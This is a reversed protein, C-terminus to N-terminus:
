QLSHYMLPEKVLKDTDIRFDFMNSKFGINGMKGFQVIAAPNNQVQMYLLGLAYRNELYNPNTTKSLELLAIANQPHNAGISAAAGMFLTREDNLKYTDVAENYLLYSQEFDQNYFHALALATILNAHNLNTVQLTHELKQILPYLTGTIAAMAIAKDRVIQSGFYLDNYSLHQQKLYNLSSRAYEKPTQNNFHTDIYLLHPLTDNPQLTILKKSANQAQKEMGLEQAIIINMALYLPKTKYTNDLWRSSSTFNNNSIDLLTRYLTFEETNKELSLNEKLISTLKPNQKSIMESTMIAFIGALYNNADLHYSRLFHDYAKTYEGLQAHTLALNYHLISHQPNKVVLDKLQQNADRLQFQLAKQIALAIGYDIDSARSSKSLYEKASEIDDIFINVAGKRLYSITQTANYIKYPAFAFIKPYTQPHVKGNITRYVKQITSPHFLTPKLFVALPYPTYVENPYRVTAKKLLNSADLHEGLKLLVFTLALSEQIPKTNQIIASNLYEKAQILNGNNVHLLGLTFSDKEQYPKELTAIAGDFNGHLTDISAKLDNQTELYEKSTPHNLASLAEFYNGQYYNILTYYYSYLPSNTQEGLYAQALDIYYNFDDEKKLHLCCAAANIASVCRNESMAISRKFNELALAYEKEKLRVVGLNYQSISESYLAIKEFLKLAEGQNGNAYMYNAREIMNELESPTIAPEDANKSAILPKNKKLDEDHSSGFVFYATIGGGALLLTAVGAIIALKKKNLPKKVEQSENDDTKPAEVGAADSEEIIIIEEQDAM